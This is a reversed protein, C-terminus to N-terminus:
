IRRLFISGSASSSTNPCPSGVLDAEGTVVIGSSTVTVSQAEDDMAGGVIRTPQPTGDAAFATIFGDSTGTSTVNGAGFDVTGVFMGTAYVAGSDDVALRRTDECDTGGFTRVWQFVGNADYKVVYGDSMGNSAIGANGNPNMTNRFFGTAFVNDDADVAVKNGWDDASGGFGHSWRHNGDRDYSAVFVDLANGFPLPGGGLDLADTYYGTITLNGATDAAVGRASNWAGIGYCRSWRHTGETTFAAIFMAQDSAGCTFPMGGAESTGVTLGVTYLDGAPSVAVDHASDIVGVTATGMRQSWRYDGAGTFSVLYSDTDGSPMMTETGFDIAGGFLGSIYLNEAADTAVMLPVDSNTSGFSKSWLHVGDVTYRAVFVDANGANPLAGGGLDVGAESWGTVILDDNAGITTVSRGAGTGAFQGFVSPGQPADPTAESGPDFGIRGCAALSLMVIVPRM